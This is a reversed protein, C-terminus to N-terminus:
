RKNHQHRGHVVSSSPPPPIFGVQVKWEHIETGTFGNQVMWDTWYAEDEGIWISYSVTFAVISLTGSAYVAARGWESEKLPLTALVVIGLGILKIIYWAVPPIRPKNDKVHLRREWADSLGMIHRYEMWETWVGVTDIKYILSTTTETVFVISMLFGFRSVFEVAEEIHHSSIGGHHLPLTILTILHAVGLAKLIARYPIFM